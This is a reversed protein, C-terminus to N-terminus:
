RKTRSIRHFLFIKRKISSFNRNVYWVHVKLRQRFHDNEVIRLWCNEFSEIFNWKMTRNILYIQWFHLHRAEHIQLDDVYRCKIKTTVKVFNFHFRNNYHSFIDVFYIDISIFRLIQTSTNSTNSLEFLLSFLKEITQIIRTHFLFCLNKEYCKVFRSHDNITEHITDLIEIILSDFNSICLRRSEFAHESTIYENSRFILDNKRYFFLFVNNEVNLQADLLAIIKKWHFNKFYDKMLRNRFIKKMKMFNVNFVVNLENEDSSKKANVNLNILRSLANSIIHM